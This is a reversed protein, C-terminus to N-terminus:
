MVNWKKGVSPPVRMANPVKASEKRTLGSPPRTQPGSPSLNPRLCMKARVMRIIDRAVNKMPMRGVKSCTPTKAGTRSTSRRIIWPNEVPPSYPPAAVNMASYEGSLFRPKKPDNRSNPVRPPKARPVATISPKWTASLSSAIISQPQRTGNM